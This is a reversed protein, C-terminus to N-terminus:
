HGPAKLSNLFVILLRQQGDNLRLYNRKSPAAEGGHWQIADVLTEARGDHLYPASDAVGWLPPTKWERQLADWSLPYRVKLDVESVEGRPFQPQEPYDMPIAIPTGTAVVAENSRSNSRGRDGRPGRRDREAGPGSVTGGGRGYRNSYAGAPNASSSSALQYAPAPLPDQLEAGMDHLLLDSYIGKAPIVNEIHCTACGISHFVKKGRRVQKREEGSLMQMNPVPLGAVYSTLDAVQNTTIDPALSVYRPDAPDDSQRITDGVNLGLETACAGAVFGSLTDVQGRWGYKGAVRGSIMGGSSRTQSLAIANLRDLSIMEVLGMGHLPTTNRQSLYYDLSEYRGAIVPQEAIAEVSRQQPDFWESPLGNPVGVSLRQRIEDYGPRTSADHVITNFSLTNGSVLGPFFEMASHRLAGRRQRDDADDFFPSRPDVTIHTVNHIAGSAGGGPHCAACSVANHMPGLGDAPFRQADVQRESTWHRGEEHHPPRRGHRMRREGGSRRPLSMPGVTDFEAFTPEREVFVWEQEFLERGAAPDEAMGQPTILLVLVLGGAWETRHNVAM